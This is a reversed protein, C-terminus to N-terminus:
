PSAAVAGAAEAVPAESILERDTRSAVRWFKPLYHDWGELVERAKPSFTKELHQEILSRLVQEDQASTVRDLYIMEPNYRDPLHDGEDLV